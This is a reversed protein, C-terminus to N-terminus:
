AQRDLDECLKYSQCMGVTRSDGVFLNDTIKIPTAPEEPIVIDTEEKPPTEIQQKVIESITVEKIIIYGYKDYITFKYTGNETIPYNIFKEKAFCSSFIMLLFCFAFSKKM